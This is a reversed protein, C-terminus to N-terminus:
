KKCRDKELWTIYVPKLPMAFKNNVFIIDCDESSSLRWFGIQFIHLLLQKQQSLAQIKHFSNYKLLM